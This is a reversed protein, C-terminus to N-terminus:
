PKLQFAEDGLSALLEFVGAVHDVIDDFSRGFM